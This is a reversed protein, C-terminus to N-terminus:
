AGFKILPFPNAQPEMAYERDKFQGAKPFPYNGDKDAIIPPPGDMTLNEVGPSFEFPSNIYDEYTIRQGTHAAWRGMATTVSSKIGREVENYEKDDSIAKVLDEWELDYPNPEPQKGRWLLNERKTFDQGSFSMAKSPFHGATSVIACGKTGHVQTAFQTHVNLATRGELFLKAGDKFTYECSYHDFNQDVNDGRDTRGGSAQVEVPWDNKMWCAEDINHINFDSFGGGSAWLFSHFNKIQWLLENPHAKPDRRPTFVSGIIGQMRYARLMFLDGIEGGQIREFLEGRVRCHRCMLGVGVKLNKKKAEENLALLRRATPGDTCIPKEMFVNVGKDIAYKYHVWRFAVPTTFIAVDGKRLSDIAHKYADFGIFKADESVSMRDPHKKTLNEFSGDLREKSVDAMAVLRPMRQKVTMANSAAGTGRGGCGILAAKIEDSGAAHVYPLSIGSLVSLGATAKTATKLFDRRSANEVIPSNM